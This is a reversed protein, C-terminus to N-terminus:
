RVTITRSGIGTNGTLPHYATVAVTYIGTEPPVFTGAFQSAMGAYALDGAAVDAGDHTVRYRIDYQNADWTGDPTLPCGCLHAVEVAIPVEAGATFDRGFSSPSGFDVILGSLTLIVGDAGHPSRGPLAWLTQSAQTAAQPHDIPGGAEIRILTPADIDLTASFGADGDGAISGHRVRPTHVIRDTNGTIGSTVGEALIADTEADRIVVRAGGLTTGIFKADDSLVRVTVPTPEAAAAWPLTLVPVVLMLTSFKRM